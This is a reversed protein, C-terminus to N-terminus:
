ELNLLKAADSGSGIPARNSICNTGDNWRELYPRHSDIGIRFRSPRRLGTLPELVSSKHYLAGGLSTAAPQQFEVSIM